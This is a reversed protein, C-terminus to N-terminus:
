LGPPIYPTKCVESTQIHDFPCTLNCVEIFFNFYFLVTLCQSVVGHVPINATSISYCMGRGGGGGGLFFPELAEEFSWFIDREEKFGNCFHQTLRIRFTTKSENNVCHQLFKDFLPVSRSLTSQMHELVIFNFEWNLCCIFFVHINIETLYSSVFWSIMGHRSIGTMERCIPRRWSRVLKSLFIWFFISCALVRSEESSSSSGRESLEGVIMYASTKENLKKELSILGPWKMVFFEWVRVWRNKKRWHEFMEWAICHFAAGRRASYCGIESRRRRQWSRLFFFYCDACQVSVCLRRKMKVGYGVIVSTFVTNRRLSTTVEFETSRNVSQAKAGRNKAGTCTYMWKWALQAHKTTMSVLSFGTYRCSAEYMAQHDDFSSLRRVFSTRRRQRRPGALGWLAYPSLVNERNGQTKM